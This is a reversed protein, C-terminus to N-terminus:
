LKQLSGAFTKGVMVTHLKKRYNNHVSRGENKKGNNHVCYCDSQVCHKGESGRWMEKKKEIKEGAEGEKEKRKRGLALISM